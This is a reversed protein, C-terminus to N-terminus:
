SARAAKLALLKEWNDQNEEAKAKNPALAKILESMEDALIGRQKAAHEAQLEAETIPKYGNPQGNVQQRKSVRAGHAERQAAVVRQYGQEDQAIVYQTQKASTVKSM